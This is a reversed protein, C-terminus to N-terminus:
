CEEMMIKNVIKDISDALEDDFEANFDDLMQQIYELTESKKIM